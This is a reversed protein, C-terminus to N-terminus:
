APDDQEIESDVDPDLGILRRYDEPRDVDQLCAADEVHVAEVLDPHARLYQAGGIDGEQSMLAPFVSRTVFVPVGRVGGTEVMVAPRGSVQQRDALARLTVAQLLPMDAPYIFVGRADTDVTALGGRLSTSLGDRWQDNVVVTAGSDRVERVMEEAANGLVVIVQEVPVAQATDIAHRLLTRGEFKLLQKPVSGGM